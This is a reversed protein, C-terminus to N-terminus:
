RNASAAVDTAASTPVPVDLSGAALGHLVFSVLWVTLEHVSLSGSARYWQQTGDMMSFLVNTAVGPRMSADFDGSAVGATVLGRVFDHIRQRQRMIADLREPGLHRTESILVSSRQPLTALTMHMWRHIFAALRVPPAARASAEDEELTGLGREYEAHIVAFLLDEKSEIYYYLSGKLLGVRSAVEQLTAARYGNEHFVEAAAAVIEAWRAENLLGKPGDAAKSSRAARQATV